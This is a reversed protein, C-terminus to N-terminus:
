RLQLIKALTPPVEIPILSYSNKLYRHPVRSCLEYTIGPKRLGITSVNGDPQSLLTTCGMKRRGYTFRYYAAKLSTLGEACDPDHQAPTSLIGFLLPTSKSWDYGRPTM